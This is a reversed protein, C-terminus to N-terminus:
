QRHESHHNLARCLLSWDCKKDLRFIGSIDKKNETNNARFGVVAGEGTVLVLM